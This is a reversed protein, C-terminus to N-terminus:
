GIHLHSVIDHWLKGISKRTDLRQQTQGGIVKQLEQNRLCTYQTFLKSLDM